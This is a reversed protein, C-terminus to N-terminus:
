GQKERLVYTISNRLSGTDILPREVTSGKSEKRKATQPKLPKWNNKPNTFWDKAANQGAKGARELNQQMGTSDGLMASKTAQGILEGLREKSDELAPEIVPRAPIKNKPSGNSHIYLLAANNIKAGDKPESDEAPIGVLMQTNELQELTAQMQKFINDQETVSATIDFMSM